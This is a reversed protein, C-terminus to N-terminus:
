IYINDNQEVTEPFHIVPLDAPMLLTKSFAYMLVNLRMISINGQQLLALM